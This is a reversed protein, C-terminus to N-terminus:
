KEVYVQLAGDLDVALVTAYEDTVNDPVTIYVIGPIENWPADDRVFWRLTENRGVVRIDRIKNKLGKVAVFENPRDFLYLYLTSRNKSVASPGYFYGPPLGASTGYVAEAHPQIWRGLDKLRVVEELPITGDAKPGVDLLLNGGGGLCEVFTRIIERSSKFATDRQQYGWSSNMTMCLEWPGDIRKVPPDQEPTRYDGYGQLRSNIIADPNRRKVSDRIAKANWEEATHEWDGDFWLLDPNYLRQLEGIQGNVFRLFRDWPKLGEQGARPYDRTHYQSDPANARSFPVEYDPHSWDCLSFYLGVKLGQKRLAACYPELLDRGAPTKEVVNLHSFKSKWLAVGEHHKSTMVAYRAGAEAFLHAWATPDYNKATFGKAQKMYDAHSIQKNRISWSEAIGNVAYYGWHIFIGLKADQFWSLVSSDAPSAVQANAARSSLLSCVLLASAISRSMRVMTRRRTLGSEKKATHM